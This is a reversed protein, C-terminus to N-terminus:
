EEISLLIEFVKSKCLSVSHIHHIINQESRLETTTEITKQNQYIQNMM